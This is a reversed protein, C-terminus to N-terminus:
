GHLTRRSGSSSGVSVRECYPAGENEPPVFAELLQPPAELLFRRHKVLFVGGRPLLSSLRLSHFSPPCRPARLPFLSSRLGHFVSAM